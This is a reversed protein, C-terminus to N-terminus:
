RDPMESQITLMTGTRPHRGGVQNLPREEGYICSTDCKRYLILIGAQGLIDGLKYKEIPFTSMTSLPSSVTAVPSSM